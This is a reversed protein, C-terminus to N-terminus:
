KNKRNEKKRNILWAFLLGGVLIVGGSILWPTLNVPSKEASKEQYIQGQNDQELSLESENIKTAYTLDAHENGGQNPSFYIAIKPKELNNGCEHEEHYAM